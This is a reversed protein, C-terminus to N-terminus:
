VVELVDCAFVDFRDGDIDTVDVLVRGADDYRWADVRALLKPGMPGHPQVVAHYGVMAWIRHAERAAPHDDLIPDPTQTEM